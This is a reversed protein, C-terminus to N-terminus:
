PSCRSGWTTPSPRTRTCGSTRQSTKIPHPGTAAISAPILLAGGAGGAVFRLQDRQFRRTRILTFLMILGVGGFLVVPFVRLLASWTLAAGALAFKRKRACCVAAVLFFLWDQRLFAGGTWYFNAPANCGWFVTAVGHGALRLGLLVAARAWTSPRRRHMSLLKFFGDGAPALSAFLKGTMTWVPPPNYGHDKQM